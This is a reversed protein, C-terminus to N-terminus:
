RLWLFGGKLKSGELVFSIKGKQLNGDILYYTGRDWVMVTGAGYNGKPIVGEFDHYDYPHDEVM